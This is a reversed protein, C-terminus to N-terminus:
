VDNADVGRNPPLETVELHTVVGMEDAVTKVAKQMREIQQEKKTRNGFAVTVGDHLWSVLHMQQKSKLIPLLALMLKLEYSQVIGALAAPVNPEGYRANPKGDVHKKLNPPIPRFRGFADEGGGNATIVEQQHKRAKLLAKIFPHRFFLRTAKQGVGQNRLGDGEALCKRLKRQGMGFLISYTTTKIAPKDSMQLGTERILKEWFSEGSKLFEQKLFEQLEPIDWIKAVIALQCARLDLEVAGALAVKRIERPLQHLSAGDAYIRSTNSVAKYFVQEDPDLRAVQNRCHRKRKAEHETNSPMDDVAKQVSPWNRKLFRAMYKHNNKDNHIFELLKRAPHDADVADFLAQRRAHEEEALRRQARGSIPQGTVFDVRNGDDGKAMGSRMATIIEPAPEPNITRAEFETYRYDSWNLPFVDESFAAMWDLAVFNRRVVPVEVLAAVVEHPLILEHTDIDYNSSFLVYQAMRWYTRTDTPTKGKPFKAKWLRRLAPAHKPSELAPYMSVLLQRFESSVRKPWLQFSTSTAAQEQAKHDPWFPRKPAIHAVYDAGHIFDLVFDHYEDWSLTRLDLFAGLDHPGLGPVTSENTSTSDLHSQISNM